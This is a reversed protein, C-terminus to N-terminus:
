VHIDETGDAPPDEGMRHHDFADQQWFTVEDRRSM